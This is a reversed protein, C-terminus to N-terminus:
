YSRLRSEVTTPRFPTNMEIELYNKCRELYDLTLQELQETALSKKAIPFMTGEEEQLHNLVLTALVKAKADVDESWITEFSMDKLEGGLQYALDHEDQGAIGELRADKSEHHHLTQYLTDEEAQAHMNLVHLFEALANQKERNTAEKDTLVTISAELYDHHKKLLTVFKPPEEADSELSVRLEELLHKESKM